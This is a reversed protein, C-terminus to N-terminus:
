FVMQNLLFSMTLHELTKVIVKLMEWTNSTPMLQRLNLNLQSEFSRGIVSKYLQMPKMISATAWFRETVSIPIVINKINDSKCAFMWAQRGNRNETWTICNDFSSRVASFDIMALDRVVELSFALNAALSIVQVFCTSDLCKSVSLLHVHAVNRNKWHMGEFMGRWGQFTRSGKQVLWVIGVAGIYYM